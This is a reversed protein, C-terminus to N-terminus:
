RRAGDAGLADVLAAVSDFAADHFRLRGAADVVVEGSDRAGAMTVVLGRDRLADAIRHAERLAAADSGDARVALAAQTTEDAPLLPVVGPFRDGAAVVWISVGALGIAQSVALVTLVHLRRSALGGLFDGVGWAAAGCLALLAAM